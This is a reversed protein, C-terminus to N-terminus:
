PEPQGTSGQSWQDKGVRKHDRISGFQRHFPCQFIWSPPFNLKKVILGLLAPSRTTAQSRPPSFWGAGELDGWFVTFFWFIKKQNESLEYHILFLWSIQSRWVGKKKSFHVTSFLAPQNLGGGARIPNFHFLLVHNLSPEFLYKKTSISIELKM